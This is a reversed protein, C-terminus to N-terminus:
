KILKLIQEKWFNRDEVTGRKSKVKKILELAKLHDQNGFKPDWHKIIKDFNDM